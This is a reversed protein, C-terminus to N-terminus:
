FFFFFTAFICKFLLCFFYIGFPWCRHQLLKRRLVNRCTNKPLCIIDLHEKKIIEQTSEIKQLYNTMTVPANLCKFVCKKLLFYNLQAPLTIVRRHNILNETHPIRYFYMWLCLTVGLLRTALAPDNCIETRNKLSGCMTIGSSFNEDKYLSFGVNLSVYGWLVWNNVHRAESVCTQGNWDMKFVRSHFVSQITLSLCSVHIQSCEM